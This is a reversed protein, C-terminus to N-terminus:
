INEKYWKELKKNKIEKVQKLKITYQKNQLEEWDIDARRILKQKFHKKWNIQHQPRGYKFTTVVYQPWTMELLKAMKARGDGQYKATNGGKMKM